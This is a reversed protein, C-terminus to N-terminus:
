SRVSDSREQIKLRTMHNAVIECTGRGATAPVTRECWGDKRYALVFVMVMAPGVAAGAMATDAGGVGAACLVAATGDAAPVGAADPVGAALAM